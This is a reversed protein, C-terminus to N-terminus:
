AAVQHFHGVRLFTIVAVSLRLPGAHGVRNESWAKKMKKSLAAVIYSNLSLQHEAAALALQKGFSEPYRLTFTRM